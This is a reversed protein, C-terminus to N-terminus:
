KKKNDSLDKSLKQLSGFVLEFIAKDFDGKGSLFDSKIELYSLEPVHESLRMYDKETTLLIKEISQLGGYANKIQRIDEKSFNHHDPYNFHEFKCDKAKLHDLFSRPNAIGTIVILEHNKLETESVRTTGKTEKDYTIGSFFIPKESYKGIRRKINEKMEFSLDKPCKTVIILDARKAGKRSERLNGRPLVYDDTFLDGYKTLLIYFDAKVKRHQFADDLLIIDPDVEKQLRKIGNVRNADVAVDIDSFKKFFQLPEDGVDLASHTENILVFGNTKRKYGRSLVALKKDSQLLRILYEVQPSKGTGGMNLNGVAIVPIDFSTSKFIGKDYLLNRFWMIQRYLFAFPFLFFRILKM